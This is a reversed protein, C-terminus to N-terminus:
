DTKFTEKPSYLETYFKSTIEGMRALDKQNINANDRLEAIKLSNKPKLRHLLKKADTEGYALYNCTRKDRLKGQIELFNKHYNSAAKAFLKHAESDEPNNSINNVAKNYESWSRREWNKRKSAVIRGQKSLRNAIIKKIITQKEVLDIDKASQISAKIFIRFLEVFKKDELLINNMCWIDKSTEIVSTNTVTIRVRYKHDTRFNPIHVM